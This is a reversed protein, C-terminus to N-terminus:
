DPARSFPTCRIANVGLTQMLAADLQCQTDNVLPDLPSRQYAVGIILSSCLIRPGKIFFQKGTADYFKNGKISLLSIADVSILLVVVLCTWLMWAM